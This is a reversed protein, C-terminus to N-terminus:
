NKATIRIRTPREGYCLCATMLRWSYLDLLFTGLPGHPSSVTIQSKVMPNDYINEIHNAVPHVEMRSNSDM